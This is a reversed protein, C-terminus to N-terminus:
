AGSDAPQTVPIAAPRSSPPRYPIHEDLAYVPPPPPPDPERPTMTSFANPRDLRYGLPAPALPIEAPRSPARTKAAMVSYADQRYMTYIPLPAPQHAAAPAPPPVYPIHEDLRYIRQSLRVPAPAPGSGAADPPVLRAPLAPQGPQAQARTTWTQTAKTQTEKTQTEKTQTAETQTAQPPLAPRPQNINM